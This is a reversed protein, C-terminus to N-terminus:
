VGYRKRIQRVTSKFFGYGLKYQRQYDAVKESIKNDIENLLDEIESEVDYEFEELIERRSLKPLPM